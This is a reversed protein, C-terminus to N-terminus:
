DTVSGYFEREPAAAAIHEQTLRISSAVNGSVLGCRGMQEDWLACADERCAVDESTISRQANVKLAIFVFPCMKKM